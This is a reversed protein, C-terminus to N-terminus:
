DDGITLVSAIAVDEEEGESITCLGGLGPQRLLRDPGELATAWCPCMIGPSLENGDVGLVGGKSWVAVSPYLPGELTRTGKGCLVVRLRIAGRM